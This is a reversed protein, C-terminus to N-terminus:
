TIPKRGSLYHIPGISELMPVEYPWAPTLLAHYQRYQLSTQWPLSTM